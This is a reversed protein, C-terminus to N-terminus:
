AGVGHSSLKELDDIRKQMAQMQRCLYHIPPITVFCLPIWMGWLMPFGGGVIASLTNGVIEMTAGGLAFIGTMWMVTRDSRKSFESITDIDPQAM